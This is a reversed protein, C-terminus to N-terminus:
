DNLTQLCLHVYPMLTNQIYLHVENEEEHRKLQIQLIFQCSVLKCLFPM